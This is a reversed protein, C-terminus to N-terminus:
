FSFKGLSFKTPLNRYIDSKPKKEKLKKQSKNTYM